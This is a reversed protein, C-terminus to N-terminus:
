DSCGLFIADGRGIIEGETKALLKPSRLLSILRMICCPASHTWMPGDVETRREVVWRWASVGTMRHARKESTMSPHAEGVAGVQSSGSVTVSPEARTWSFVTVKYGVDGHTRGDERAHVLGDRADEHIAM